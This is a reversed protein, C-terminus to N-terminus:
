IDKELLLTSYYRMAKILSKFSSLKMLKLLVIWVWPRVRLLRSEFRFWSRAGKIASLEQKLESLDYGFTKVDEKSLESLLENAYIVKQPNATLENKWRDLSETNPAKAKFAQIPDGLRFEKEVSDGYNVVGNEFDIGAFKLIRSAEAEPSTVLDEYRVHLSAVDNQNLFDALIPLDNQIDKGTRVTEKYSGAFFSSSISDLIALPNRSLVIYKAKPYLKTLFRWHFYFTKDLLLDAKEDRSLSKEYLTNCYARLAELYDEEGQPLQKVLEQIGLSTISIPYHAQVPTAYYGLYKIPLTLSHEPLTSVRSHASLMLQLLTTGSRPIGFIFILNEGLNNLKSM